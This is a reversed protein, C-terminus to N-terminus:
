KWVCVQLTEPNTRCGASCGPSTQASGALGGLGQSSDVLRGHLVISCQQATGLVKNMLRQFVAPGNRLGFVMREFQGTEDPTIFATKAKSEESLPLQLYGNACDLVCYMRAGSLRQLQDDINPLPFHEPVTQSSLRRYDIVLRNEGNKKKVLLVPSAYPSTTETVIGTAKWEEVIKQIAEREAANTKYPKCSVPTSGPKETITMELHNCCGLESLNLAFCDRYENLMKLLADVQQENIDKGVNLMGRDIPEQQPVTRVPTLEERESLLEAHAFLSGRLLQQDEDKDNLVPIEVRGHEIHLLMGKDTGGPVILSGESKGTEVTVWCVTRKPLVMTEKVRLPEKSPKIQALDIDCFPLDDRYGIRLEDGMRLYAIHDQETWTRGVLMDVPLASDNVVIVKVKHCVVDDIEIDVESTGISRVTSTDTNGFGYLDQGKCVVQLNCKEAARHRLICDSSGPDIMVSLQHTGNILAAKLFKAPDSDGSSQNVVFNGVPNAAACNRAMHGYKGCSYCKREAQDRKLSEPTKKPPGGASAQDTPKIMNSGQSISGRAVSKQDTLRIGSTQETPRATTAWSRSTSSGVRPTAGPDGSHPKGRPSMQIRSESIRELRRLDALLEDEDRHEKATLSICADRSRLGVLVQEKTDQMGLGLEKCLLTKELFYATTSEGRMQIREQMQKWKEATSTEGVFTKRFAVKFDEWTTLDEVRAQLWFRAPGKMHLRANELRFSDPWGHLVAMSDISKLWAGAEHSSGEGDFDHVAKNLDPMVHFTEPKREVLDLLRRNQELLAQMIENGNDNAM